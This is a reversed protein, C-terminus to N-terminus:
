AIISSHERQCLPFVACSLIRDAGKWNVGIQPLIFPDTGENAMHNDIASGYMEILPEAYTVTISAPSEHKCKQPAPTNIYRDPKQRAVDM